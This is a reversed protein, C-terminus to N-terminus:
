AFRGKILDKSFKFHQYIYDKVKKNGNEESLIVNLHEKFTNDNIQNAIKLLDIQPKIKKYFPIEFRGVYFIPILLQLYEKDEINNFNNVLNNIKNFTFSFIPFEFLNNVFNTVDDSYEKVTKIFKNFVLHDSHFLIERISILGFPLYSFNSFKSNIEKHFKEVGFLSLFKKSYDIINNDYSNPNILFANMIFNLEDDEILNKNSIRIVDNELDERNSNKLVDSGNCIELYFSLLDIKSIEDTSFLEKIINEIIYRKDSNKFHDTLLFFPSTSTASFGVPQNKFKEKNNILKLISYKVVQKYVQNSVNQLSPFIQIFFVSSENNNEFQYIILEDIIENDAQDKDILNMLLELVIHWFPSMIYEAILKNRLDKKHKKEINTFIWYATFYELFTKHTFNNDFYLSRKEAYELFKEASNESIFEDTVKLKENLSKAVTNKARQYTIKGNKSSLQKYQWYALDAFITDKRKYIDEPLSIDLGKSYDWKDVLTKTCSQYIELKSEPVKLNNRYLIVILSLLLPNSVLEQDILNRKDLLDEIEKERTNENPEEILYWNEIYNQIQYDNFQNINLKLVLGENLAADNYGIFRSTVIIRSNPYLTIFNEIDNKVNLKDNLDFIEDLGDFIILSKKRKLINELDLYPIDSFGFELEMVYKLFRVLGGKDNKKFNHYKRLELRFPIRKLIPKNIFESEDNKVIKLTIYKTLISKGSGPNGLIVLSKDFDFISNLNIDLNEDFEPDKKILNAKDNEHIRFTPKVFLDELNKRKGKKISLDLGLGIFNLQSYNNIVCLSYKELFSSTSFNNKFKKELLLKIKGIEGRTLSSNKEIEKLSNNLGLVTLYIEKNSLITNFLQDKQLEKKLIEIFDKLFDPSITSNDFKQEIIEKNIKSDTFLLKMLESLVEEQKFLYEINGGLADPYSEKLKLASKNVVKYFNKDFNPKQINDYLSDFGKDIIKKGLWVSVPLLVNFDFIIDQM